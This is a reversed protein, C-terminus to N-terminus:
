SLTWSMAGGKEDKLQIGIKALQNRIKDSTAWDKKARAERRLEILVEMVGKLKDAEGATESQLGMIDEVFTKMKHQLLHLTELSLAEPKIQKDKLSNIVPVLEFMNALVKATHFDDNIFDEFESLLKLVKEELESDSPPHHSVSSQGSDPTAKKSDDTTSVREDRYQQM